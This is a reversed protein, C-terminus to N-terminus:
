SARGIYFVKRAEDKQRGEDLGVSMKVFCEGGVTDGVGGPREVPGDGGPQGGTNIKLGSIDGGAGPRNGVTVQGVASRRYTGVYIGTFADSKTGELRDQRQAVTEPVDHVELDDGEASARDRTAGTGVVSGGQHIGQCCPRVEHAPRRGDIRVREDGNVGQRIQRCVSPNAQIEVDVLRDVRGSEGHGPQDLNDSAAEGVGDRGAVRHAQPNLGDVTLTLYRSRQSLKADRDDCKRLCIEEQL